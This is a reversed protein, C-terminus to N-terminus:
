SDVGDTEPSLTDPSVDPPERKDLEGYKKLYIRALRRIAPTSRRFMPPLCSVEYIDSKHDSACIRNLGFLRCFRIGDRSVGDAIMRDIFIGRDALAQFDETLADMMTLIMRASRHAPHVVVSAFYLHYIGPAAYKVVMDPTLDSDAFGGARIRAYTESSVPLLMSYGVISGTERDRVAVGSENNTRFLAYNYSATKHYCEEEYNQNDLSVVDEIEKLTVDAGRVVEYRGDDPYGRAAFMFMNRNFGAAPLHLAPLEHRAMAFHRGDDRVVLRTAKEERM